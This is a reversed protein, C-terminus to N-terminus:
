LTPHIWKCRIQRTWTWWLRDENKLHGAGNRSVLVSWLLSNDCISAVNSM